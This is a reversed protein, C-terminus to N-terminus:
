LIVGRCTDVGKMYRRFAAIVALHVEANGQFRSM